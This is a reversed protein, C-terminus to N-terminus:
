GARRLVVAFFGDLAGDDPGTHLAGTADVFRAAEGLDGRPSADQSWSREAALFSAVVDENEERLLTCTAYVLRGGPRVLRAASGILRRQAAALAAVDSPSRRWRIEPHSRLTGLGSCPADLLAADFSGEALPAAAGDARAVRIRRRPERRAMADIARVGRRSRDLAVLPPTAEDLREAIAGSKGGPAACLDVIREGSRPALLDVVLLSAESQPQLWPLHLVDRLPGDIRVGDAAFPAKRAVVGTAALEELAQDRTARRRDVRVVSPAVDNDAALLAETRANGLEAIWREVLWTPHSSRIALADALGVEESGPLAREGQRAAARLVANVVKAPAAGSRQKVLEVSTDVAAHAPVRQLMLLQFLGLRLACRVPPDLRELPRRVLASLTWDLRRQWAITGYVLRTLLGADRAELAGRELAEGLRQDSFGGGEVALLVELALARASATRVDASGSARPWARVV